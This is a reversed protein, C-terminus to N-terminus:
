GKILYDTVRAVAGGMKSNAKESLQKRKKEAAANLEEVEALGESQAAAIAAEIAKKREVQAKELIKQRNRRGKEAEDAAQAKAEEIIRQAEAEAQKIQKILEM